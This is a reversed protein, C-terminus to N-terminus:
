IHVFATNPQSVVLTTRGGVGENLPFRHDLPLLRERRIRLKKM